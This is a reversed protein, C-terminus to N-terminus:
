FIAIIALIFEMISDMNEIFWDLIDIFDGVYCGESDLAAEPPLAGMAMAKETIAFELERHMRPVMLVVNAAMRQRFPVRAKRMSKRLTRGLTANM